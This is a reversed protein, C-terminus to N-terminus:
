GQIGMLWEAQFRWLCRTLGPSASTNKAESSIPFSHIIHDISKMSEGSRPERKLLPGLRTLATLSSAPADSQGSESGMMEIMGIRGGPPNPFDSISGERLIANRGDLYTRDCQRKLTRVPTTIAYYYYLLTKGNDIRDHLAIHSLTVPNATITHKVLQCTQM